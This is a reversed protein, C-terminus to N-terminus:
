PHFRNMFFEVEKEFTETPIGHALEPRIHLLFETLRDFHGYLFALTEGPNVVEDQQGLVIQKFNKGSVDRQPVEQEVSRSKLAPNFLLAPKKLADAVYYGAFGGMSSGIVVDIGSGSYSNVISEIAKDNNYYDLDPAYVKGSKELIKRKDSNLKSDLGHLYLINM